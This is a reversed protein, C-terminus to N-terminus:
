YHITKVVRGKEWHVRKDLLLNRVCELFVFEDFHQKIFYNYM